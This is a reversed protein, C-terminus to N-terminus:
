RGPRRLRWRRVSPAPDDCPEGTREPQLAARLATRCDLCWFVHQDVVARQWDDLRGRAYDGLLARLDDHAPDHDPADM